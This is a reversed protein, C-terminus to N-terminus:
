PGPPADPLAELEGREDVVRDAAAGTPDIMVGGGMFLVVRGALAVNALAAAHQAVEAPQARYGDAVDLVWGMDWGAKDHLKDHRVIAAAVALDALNALDAFAPIGRSLDDFHETLLNAYATAKPTPKVRGGVRKPATLVKVGPGRLEFAHGDASVRVPEYSEAFWFRNSLMQPQDLTAIYSGVGRVPSRMLGIALRKMLYDAEIAVQAYRSDGPLNLLEIPMAGGAEAMAAAVEHRRGPNSAIMSKRASLADLMRQAAEAKLQITCGFPESRDAAPGVIRLATALDDLRLVPRGTKGGFAQGGIREIPEAPGGIVLDGAEPYAIVYRLRVLGKLYKVDDPLTQGAEQLRRAEAFVRPLSVFTREGVMGDRIGRNVIARLRAGHELREARMVGAPDIRVGEPDYAVVGRQAQAVAGGCLVTLILTLCTLGGLRCEVSPRDPIM